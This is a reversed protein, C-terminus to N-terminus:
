EGTGKKELIKEEIYKLKLLYIHMIQMDGKKEVRDLFLTWSKNINLDKLIERPKRM